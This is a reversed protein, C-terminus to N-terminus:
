PNVVNRPRGSVFARVNEVTADLLRQRAARSAWAHHPTVLCNKATLLPNDARPPEAALVDLGAGGIRGSNLAAALDEEVVLPGRSTNILLAAPKMMELRRRDVLGQTEPTLPCHLSVVDARRFIDDVPSLPVDPPASRSAVLVEM